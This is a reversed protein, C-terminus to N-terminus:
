EGNQEDSRRQYCGAACRSRDRWRRGRRGRLRGSLCGRGGLRGCLRTIGGGAEAGRPLGDGAVGEVNARLNRGHGIAPIDGYGFVARAFAVPLDLKRDHADFGGALGGARREHQAGAAGAAAAQPIHLAGLAGPEECGVTGNQLVAVEDQEALAARRRRLGRQVARGVVRQRELRRYLPHRQLFGALCGLIREHLAGLRELRLADVQRGVVRVLVGVVDVSDALRQAVVLDEVVALGVAGLQALEDQAAVGVDERPDHEVADHRHRFLLGHLDAIDGAGEAPDEIGGRGVLRAVGGIRVELLHEGLGDVAQGLARHRVLELKRALVRNVQLDIVQQRHVREEDIEVDGAAVALQGFVDLLEM